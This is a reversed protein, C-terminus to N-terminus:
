SDQKLIEELDSELKDALAKCGCDGDNGWQIRDFKRLYAWILNELKSSREDDTSNSM